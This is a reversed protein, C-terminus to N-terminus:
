FVGAIATGLKDRVIPSAEEIDLKKQLVHGVSRMEYLKPGVQDMVNPSAYIPSASM